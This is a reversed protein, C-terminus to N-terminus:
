GNRGSETIKDPFGNKVLMQLFRAFSVHGARLSVMFADGSDTSLGPNANGELFYYSQTDPNYRVDFRAYDRFDLAYFARLADRRIMRIIEPPINKVPSQFYLHAYAYSHENWKESFGYINWKTRIRGAFKMEAPPFATISGGHEVVLIHLERGPIFEELLLSQHFQRKLMRTRTRLAGSSLVVSSESIGISCHDFAPKVILPYPAPMRIGTTSRNKPIVSYKPTPIGFKKFLRKSRIKNNSTCLAEYRSGSYPIRMRDLTKAIRLEMQRSDVLNIVFQAHLNCLSSVDHDSIGISITHFGCARLGRAVSKVIETTDGDVFNRKQSVSSVRTKQEMRHYVIAVTHPAHKQKRRKQM